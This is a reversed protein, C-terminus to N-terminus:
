ILIYTKGAWGYVWCKSKSINTQSLTYKWTKDLESFLHSIPNKFLRSQMELNGLESSLKFISYYGQRWIQNFPSSQRETRHCRADALLWNIILNATKLFFININYHLYCNKHWNLLQFYQKWVYILTYIAFHEQQPQVGQGM